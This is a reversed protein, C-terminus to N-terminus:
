ATATAALIDNQEDAVRALEEFRAGAGSGGASYAAPSRDTLLRVEDASLIADDPVRAGPELEALVRGVAMQDRAVLESDDSALIRAVDSESVEDAVGAGSGGAATAARRALGKFRREHIVLKELRR